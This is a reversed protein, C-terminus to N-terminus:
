LERWVNFTAAKWEMTTHTSVQQLANMLDMEITTVKQESADLGKGSAVIFANIM